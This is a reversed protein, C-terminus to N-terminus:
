RGAAVSRALEFWHSADWWRVALGSTSPCVFLKTTNVREKQLGYDIRKRDLFVRAAKKGNFALLRPRLGQIKTRLADGNFGEHPLGTDPGFSHKAIDTLGIGFAIVERFESPALVRPTLGIEYLTPWFKNGKGAYYTGLVASGRGAATGCFVVRLNPALVDPLVPQDM